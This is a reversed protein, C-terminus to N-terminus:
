ETSVDRDTSQVARYPRQGYTICRGARSYLKWERRSFAEERKKKQLEKRVARGRRRGLCCSFRLRMKDAMVKNIGLLRM